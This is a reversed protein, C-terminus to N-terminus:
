TNVFYHSPPPLISKCSVGLTLHNTIEQDHVRKDMGEEIGFRIRNNDEQNKTNNEKRSKAYKSEADKRSGM